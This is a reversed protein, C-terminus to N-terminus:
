IGLVELELQKRIIERIITNHKYATLYANFVGIEYDIVEQGQEKFEYIGLTKDLRLIAIKPKKAM